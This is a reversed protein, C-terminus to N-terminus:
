IFFLNKILINYSNTFSFKRTMNNVQRAGDNFFRSFKLFDIKQMLFLSGTDQFSNEDIYKIM